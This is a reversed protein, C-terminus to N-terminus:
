RLFLGVLDQVDCELKRWIICDRKIGYPVSGIINIRTKLGNERVPM